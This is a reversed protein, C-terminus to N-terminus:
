GLLCKMFFIEISTVARANAPAEPAASASFTEIDNRFASPTPLLAPVMVRFSVLRPKCNVGM